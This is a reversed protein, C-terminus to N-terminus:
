RKVRIISFLVVGIFDAGLDWLDFTRSPIFYQSCEELSAFTLVIISGLYPANALAGKFIFSTSDQIKIWVPLHTLLRVRRFDLGYNLLLAMMGYLLAHCIKDGYPIQGVMHFAFNYDATDALFIIYSIFIFFSLPYLWRIQTSTMKTVMSKLHLVTAM